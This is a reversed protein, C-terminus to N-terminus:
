LFRLFPSADSGFSSSQRTPFCVSPLSPTFPLFLLLLKLSPFADLYLPVLPYTYTYMYVSPCPWLKHHFLPLSSSAHKIECWLSRIVNCFPIFCHFWLCAPVMLYFPLFSVFPFRLLFLLFLFQSFIFDTRPSAVARGHALPEFCSSGPLRTRM